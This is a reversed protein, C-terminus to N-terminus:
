IKDWDQWKYSELAQIVENTKREDQENYIKWLNVIYDTFPQVITTLTGIIRPNMEGSEVLIKFKENVEVLKTVDKTIESRFEKENVTDSKLSLEVYDIMPNAIAKAETYYLMAKRLKPQDDAFVIKSIKAYGVSREREKNLDKMNRLVDPSPKERCGTSLFIGVMFLCLFMLVMKKSHLM